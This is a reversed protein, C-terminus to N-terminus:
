LPDLTEALMLNHGDPDTFTALKVMDPITEIEGVFPVGQQQLHQMAEEINIVEFVTSSTSPVVAEAESLGIVCDPTNTSVMAMGSEVDHFIKEFGLKETYFAITADLRSINYWVTVGSKYM